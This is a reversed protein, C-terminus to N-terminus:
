TKTGSKKEKEAEMEQTLIWAAKFGLIFGEQIPAPINAGMTKAEIVLSTLATEASKHVVSGEGYQRLKSSLTTTM